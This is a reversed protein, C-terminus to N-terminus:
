KTDPTNGNMRRFRLGMGGDPTVMRLILDDGEIALDFRQFTSEAANIFNMEGPFSPIRHYKVVSGDSLSAQFVAEETGNSTVKWSRLGRAAIADDPKLIAGLSGDDTFQINMIIALPGRGMRWEGILGYVPLKALNAPPPPGSFATTLFRDLFARANVSASAADSSSESDKVVSAVFSDYEARCAAAADKLQGEPSSAVRHHDFARKIFCQTYADLRERTQESYRDSLIDIPQSPSLEQALLFVALIM